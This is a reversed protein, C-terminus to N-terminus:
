NLVRVEREWDWEGIFQLHQMHSNNNIQYPLCNAHFIEKTMAGKLGLTYWTVVVMGVSEVSLTVVEMCSEIICGSLMKSWLKM